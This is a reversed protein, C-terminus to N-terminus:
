GPPMFYMIRFIPLICNGLEDITTKGGKAINMIWYWSDNASNMCALAGGLLFLVIVSIWNVPQLGKSIFGKAVQCVAVVVMVVGLGRFVTGGWTRFMTTANALVSDITWAFALPTLAIMRM